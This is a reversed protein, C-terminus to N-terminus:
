NLLKGDVKDGEIILWRSQLKKRSYVVPTPVEWFIGLIEKLGNEKVISQSILLKLFTYFNKNAKKCLIFTQTYIKLNETM